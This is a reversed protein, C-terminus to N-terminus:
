LIEDYTKGKPSEFFILQLKYILERLSETKPFSRFNLNSINNDNVTHEHYIRTRLLFLKKHRVVFFNRLMEKFSNQNLLITIEEKDTDSWGEGERHEITDNNPDDEPDENDLKPFESPQPELDSLYDELPHIIDSSSVSAQQSSRSLM